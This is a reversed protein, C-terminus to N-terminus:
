TSPLLQLYHIVLLNNEHFSCMSRHLSEINENWRCVAGAAVKRLPSLKSGFSLCVTSVLVVLGLGACCTDGLVCCCAMRENGPDKTHTHPLPPGRWLRLIFISSFYIHSSKQKGVAPSFLGWVTRSRLLLPEGRWVPAISWVCPVSSPMHAGNVLLADQDRLNVFCPVPEKLM